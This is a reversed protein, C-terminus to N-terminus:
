PKLKAYETEVWSLFNRHFVEKSFKEVSERMAQRSSNFNTIENAFFIPNLESILAGNIGNQIYELAGGRALAFVPTGAAIAEIPTIGFDEVGAFILAKANQLIVNWTDDDPADIFYTDVGSLKAKDALNEQEPGTGMIVLPLNMEAAVLIAFQHNKYGVLRGATLLYSKTGLSFDQPKEGLTSTTRELDVPPYIVVSDREWFNRVRLSVERSISAIADLRSASSKELLKLLSPFIGKRLLRGRPDLNPLWLARAPTYVYSFYVTGRDNLNKVMHAFTHSSSIVLDYKKLTLSHFALPAFMAAILRNEHFPVFRMWSERLRAEIDSTRTLNRDKYLVWLDAEPFVKAMELFTNESGGFSTWWEHVIAIKIPTM